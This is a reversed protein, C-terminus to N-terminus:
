ETWKEGGGAGREEVRNLDKKSCGPIVKGGAAM